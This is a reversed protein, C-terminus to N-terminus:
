LISWLVVGDRDGIAGHEAQYATLADDESQGPEGVIWHWREPGQPAKAELAAVRRGISTM